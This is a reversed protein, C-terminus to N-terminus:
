GAKRVTVPFVVTKGTVDKEWSRASQFRLTCTGEASAAFVWVRTGAAGPPGAKTKTQDDELTLVPGCDPAVQWRYGTTRNESLTVQVRQGVETTVPQGAAAEDLEIM